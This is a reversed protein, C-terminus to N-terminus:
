EGISQEYDEFVGANGDRDIGKHFGSPTKLQTQVKFHEIAIDDLLGMGTLPSSLAGDKMFSVWLDNTNYDRVHYKDHPILGKAIDLMLTRLEHENIYDYGAEDISLIEFVPMKIRQIDM